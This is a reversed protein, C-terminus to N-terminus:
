GNLVQLMREQWPCEDFNAASESPPKGMYVGGLAGEPGRIAILTTGKVPTESLIEKVARLGNARCIGHLAHPSVMYNSDHTVTRLSPRM